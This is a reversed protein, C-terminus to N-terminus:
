SGYWDRNSSNCKAKLHGSKDSNPLHELLLGFGQSKHVLHMEQRENFWYRWLLSPLLATCLVTLVNTHTTGNPSSLTSFNEALRGLKMNFSIWYSTSRCKNPGTRSKASKHILLSQTSQRVSWNILLFMDHCPSNNRWLTCTVVKGPTATDWQCCLYIMIYAPQRSWQLIIFAMLRM